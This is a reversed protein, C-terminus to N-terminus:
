ILFGKSHDLDTVGTYTRSKSLVYDESWVMVNDHLLLFAEVGASGFVMAQHTDETTTIGGGRRQVVSQVWQMIGNHVGTSIIYSGSPLGEPESGGRWQEYGIARREKAKAASEPTPKLAPTDRVMAGALSDIMAVAKKFGRRFSIIAGAKDWEVVQKVTMRRNNM